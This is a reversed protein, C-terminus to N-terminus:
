EKYNQNILKVSLMKQLRRSYRIEDNQGWIGRFVLGEAPQNNEYFASNARKQLDDISMLNFGEQNWYADIPVEPVNLKLSEPIRNYYKGTDLDKYNFVFLTVESLGMPNGQIGPGCIEGQIATGCIMKESLNYKRAMQWHVNAETDRLELNRSCVHFSGDSEKIYTASTGDMKVSSVVCSCNRLEELVEINSKLNDEDTKSIFQKPFDGAVQGALHAPIQKEYKSIGLVQPLDEESVGDAITTPFVLGQSVTGLLRVTKVRIPKEPNNKDWLFKNWEAPTLVTDIPIFIVKDKLKYAGKKVVCQWGQIRALEIRDAGEIPTIESINEFTALKM